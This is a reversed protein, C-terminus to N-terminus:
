FLLQLQSRVVVQHKEGEVDSRWGAGSSDYQDSVENFGIGFDTTWKLHHKAFYRNFGVSMTSLPSVLAPPNNVQYDGFSSYEYRAYMEWKDPVVFVGGQIVWGWQDLDAQDFRRWVFYSFANWGNGELQVDATFQYVLQKEKDTQDFLNKNATSGYQGQDVAFAGGIKLALDSGNWSTFDDFRKWNDGIAQWDVRGMFAYETDIDLAATNRSRFGDGYMVAFRLQDSTWGIEIGQSRKQSFAGNVLSREVALQRKSSVLEEWLFPGKFQGVRAYWNGFRKRIFATELSFLGGAGTNGDFPPVGTSRYPPKSSEAGGKRSFSGQISYQWSPDVIHGSFKLKARRDEFGWVSANRVKDDDDNRGPTGNLHNYVFRVQIQGEIKLKYNGDASELFFKKDWGATMGSQMLAVRTDADALVDQVLGSIQEARQETLWGPGAQQRLEHVESQLQDIQERMQNIIDEDNVRAYGTVPFASTLALAFLVKHDM